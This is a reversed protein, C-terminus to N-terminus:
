LAHGSTHGNTHAGHGNVRSPARLRWKRDQNDVLNAKRLPTMSVSIINRPVGCEEAIEAVTLWKDYHMKAMIQEARTRKRVLKKQAVVGVVQIAVPAAAAKSAVAEAMTPVPPESGLHAMANQVAEAHSRWGAKFAVKAAEDGIEQMLELLIGIDRELQAVRGVLPDVGSPVALAKELPLPAHQEQDYLGGARLKRRILGRANLTARHDSPTFSTVVSDKKDNVYFAFRLHGGDTKTVEPRIGVSTFESLLM